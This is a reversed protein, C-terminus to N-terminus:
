RVRDELVLRLSRQRLIITAAIARGDVRMRDISVKGEAALGGVAARM